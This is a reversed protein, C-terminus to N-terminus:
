VKILDCKKSFMLKYFFQHPILHWLFFKIITKIKQKKNTYSKLQKKVNKLNYSNSVGGLSFCSTIEDVIMYNDKSWIEKQWIADADVLHAENYFITKYDDKYAFVGQHGFNHFDYKKLKRSPRLFLLKNYMQVTYSFLTKNYEFYKDGFKLLSFTNYFYDGSNLFLVYDGTANKLGKNMADYIGNDKECIIVDVIDNNKQIIDFSDDSSKGDIILYEINAGLQKQKRVSIITQELGKSNNYNVTIISVKKM